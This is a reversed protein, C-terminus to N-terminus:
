AFIAVLKYIGQMARGSVGRKFYIQKLETEM